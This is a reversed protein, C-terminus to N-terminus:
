RAKSIIQLTYGGSVLGNAGVVGVVVEYPNRLALIDNVVRTHDQTRGRRPRDWKFDAECRVCRSLNPM